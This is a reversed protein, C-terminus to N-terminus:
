PGYLWASMILLVSRSRTTVPSFCLYIQFLSVQHCPSFMFILRHSLSKYVFQSLWSLVLLLGALHEITTSPMRTPSKGLVTCIRRHALVWYLMGTFVLSFCMCGLRYGVSLQDRCAAGGDDLTSYSDSYVGGYLWDTM